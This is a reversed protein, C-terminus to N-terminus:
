ANPRRMGKAWGLDYVKFGRATVAINHHNKGGWSFRVDSLNYKRSIQNFEREQERTAPRTTNAYEQVVFFKKGVKGTRVIKAFYKLDEPLVKAYNRVEQRNQRGVSGMRPDDFKIVFKDKKFIFVTRNGTSALKGKVGRITCGSIDKGRFTLEVESDLFNILKEM